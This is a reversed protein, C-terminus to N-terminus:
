APGATNFSKFHGGGAFRRPAGAPRRHERQRLQSDAAMERQPGPRRPVARRRRLIAPQAPDTQRHRPSSRLCEGDGVPKGGSQDVEGAAYLFHRNPHGALFSPNTTKLVALKPCASGAPPPTSTRWIFGRAKPGPTPASISPSRGRPSRSAPAAPSAWPLGGALILGALRLRWLLTM